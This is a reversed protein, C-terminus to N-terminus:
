LRNGCKACFVDGERLEAGCASCFRAKYGNSQIQKPGSTNVTSENQLNNDQLRQPEAYELAASKTDKGMARMLMQVLKKGCWWMGYLMAYCLWFSFLIMYWMLKFMWYFFLIIAFVVANKKTIRTGIGVRFGGVKAITKSFTMFM